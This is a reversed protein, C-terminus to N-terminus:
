LANGVFLTFLYKVGSWGSWVRATQRPGVWSPTRDHWSAKSRWYQPKTSFKDPLAPPAYVGPQLQGGPFQYAQAVTSLALLAISNPSHM